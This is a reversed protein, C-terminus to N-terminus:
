DGAPIRRIGVFAPDHFRTPFIRVEMASRAAEIVQDNGIHMTVHSIGTSSGVGGARGWAEYILDGTQVDEVTVPYAAPFDYQDRTSRPLDRYGAAGLLLRRLRLLRHRRSRPWGHQWRRRLGLCHRHHEQRAWHRSGRRRQGRHDILM